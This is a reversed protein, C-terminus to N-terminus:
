REHGVTQPDFIPLSQTQAVIRDTSLLVDQLRNAENDRLSVTRVLSRARVADAGQQELWKRGCHDGTALSGVSAGDRVLDADGDVLIHVFRVPRSREVITEGPQFVNHSVDYDDRDAPGVRVIDRGVLPWVLWDLALRIRRDWSPAVRGLVVRWVIWPAIGKMGVGRVEGVATRGGLSIGQMRVARTYPKLPRGRVARVLNRGVHLGEQRAYLAVPPCTGGDPHAVSACDGVAWANERGKIRLYADTVVRGRADREVDLQDLLPNPKTGTTSIITRTSVHSGDSLYVETATAGVVRTELVLEVGLRELHQQAFAVLRPHSKVERELNGSGYLEPLLTAGPHVLVVRVESRDILPYDRSTLLGAYEALEGAFESGSYGGGVVVFTLLRRREAPDAEADAVEFMEIIHNRLRLADDLLALRFAHEPLGPYAGLNDAAGVGLVLHDFELERQAGDILRSTVVRGGDLDIAEIEGIHVMAPKFARRAASAVIGPGIRGTVMEAMLGHLSTFNERSVVTAAVEGRRIAPRLSRCAGITAFGGGLLLVRSAPAV